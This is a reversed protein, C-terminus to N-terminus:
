VIFNHGVLSGKELLHEAALRFFERLEPQERQILERIGALFQIEHAVLERLALSPISAAREGPAFQVRGRLAPNCGEERIEVREIM